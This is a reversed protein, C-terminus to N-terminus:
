LTSLSIFLSFISGNISGRPRGCHDSNEPLTDTRGDRCDSGAPFTPQGLPDNIIGQQQQQGLFFCM